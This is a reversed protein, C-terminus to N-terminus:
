RHFSYQAQHSTFYKKLLPLSYISSLPLSTACLSGTLILSATTFVTSIGESPPHNYFITYDRLCLM